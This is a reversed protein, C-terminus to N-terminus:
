IKKDMWIYKHGRQFGKKQLFGVMSKDSEINAWSYINTIGKNKLLKVCSNYLRSALGQGRFKKKVGLYVLCAWSSFKAGRKINLHGYKEIDNTNAYVLAVIKGEIEAVLFIGAKNKMAAKFENPEMFSQVSSVRFEKIGRAFKYTETFDVGRIKRIKFEGVM